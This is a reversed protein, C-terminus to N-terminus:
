VRDALALVLDLNHEVIMISMHRRLRDFVSFLELTVAPALGEFPEDLLLLRVNGSMARAMAAMQQEGGSLYDAAVNMREKLRPFYDFIQEESWVVGHSGDTKRALRGLALNERVTMGAFLGRGQPVYGVGLRAIDPAPLRVIDRGEFEIGGSAAPVLGALTKLLTSKGAGNRGLLAMIEGERMDLTVDNLIHSKGYFTNVREFRLIPAGAEAAEDCRRHEVAPIGKGTYIEQVRRDERVAEPSASMLVEGQNMVTVTRSFGLVRDIDHEVILVPISTSINKVLGAVREREAAALGALPEDLLLVQPKSGLAIGLDVLRQGGYSLDGGLITEIGELGLFKTLEATEAHIDPYSDIDRWINFRMPSKALLSLRLNEYISLGRFLSTIQFSRALGRHCILDPSSGGIPKGHLRIVGDDSAFMGSTLNFLTTKGAGNPGILAHIEGANVKLDAKTVARIGGFRKSVGEIELVTGQAAESVLFAPLALDNYIRRKSMAAAEMPPPRLRRMLLAGIGILGSPSYMVFGMFILGFWLLWNPTWSSLLERFLIFFLAGLAPGLMSRMGGIVVMALLEGAFPVSVAEASVLYNQFAILGGALGTVVASIVFVALKYRDVPYSQFTARLQNERIAVLVHGFPSRTLRLLFFLVVLAIVAVVIYYTMADDLNYGGIAGRKLGGLGDEGGTVESWRFATTYTLAALALTLLSFYVGRRRLIVFGIILSAFAVVIMSLLLPLWIEGRFWHLQMLGAAYAGLGFWTSHGFSVLGTYGICLNLGMAAISLAVVAIGTNLSLGLARLAFPLLIMALAALLLPRYKAALSTRM